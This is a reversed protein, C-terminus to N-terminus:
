VVSLLLSSIALKSFLLRIYLSCKHLAYKKSIVVIIKKSLEFIEELSGDLLESSYSHRFAITM